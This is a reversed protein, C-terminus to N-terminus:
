ARGSPRMIISLKILFRIPIINTIQAEITRIRRLGLLLECVSGGCLYLAAVRGHTTRLYVCTNYRYVYIYTYGYVYVYVYVSVYAYVHHGGFFLFRGGFRNTYM